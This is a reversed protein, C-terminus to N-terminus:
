QLLEFMMLNDSEYALDEILSLAYRFKVDLMSSNCALIREQITTLYISPILVTSITELVKPMRKGRANRGKASKYMENLVVYTIKEANLKYKLYIVYLYSIFRGIEDNGFTRLLEKLLDKYETCVGAEKDFMIDLVKEYTGIKRSLNMLIPIRSSKNYDFLANKFMVERQKKLVHPNAKLFDGYSVRDLLFAQYDEDTKILTNVILNEYQKHYEIVDQMYMSKLKELRADKNM